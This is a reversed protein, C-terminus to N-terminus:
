KLVGMKGNIGVLRRAHSVRTDHPVHVLNVTSCSFINYCVNNQLISSLCTNESDPNVATVAIHIMPNGLNVIM